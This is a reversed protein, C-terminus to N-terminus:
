STRDGRTRTTILRPRPAPRHECRPGPRVRTPHANRCGLPNTADIVIKGTLANRVEDTLLDDIASYPVALVVQDAAAAAATSTDVRSAVAAGEVAGVVVRPQDLQGVFQGGVARPHGVFPALVVDIVCVDLWRQDLQHVGQRAVGHRCRYM